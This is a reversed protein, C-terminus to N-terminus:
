KRAKRLIGILEERSAAQELVALVGAEGFPSLNARRLSTITEPLGMDEDDYKVCVSDTAIAPFIGKAALENKLRIELNSIASLEACIVDDAPNGTENSVAGFITLSGGKDLCRAAGFYRKLYHVTKAELGCSLMKGGSSDETENYARALANFSDVFLLVDQGCEALCKARKLLYDAVLVQREPEDEYTSYILADKDILKRFRGITEPLQDVLLVFTKLGANLATIAPAIKEIFKSKGAKPSSILLGRQGREFPVVFDMYKAAISTYQQGDYVNIKRFPYCVEANEFCQKRKFDDAKEGNIETIKTVVYIENQKKIYCTVVDGEKLEYHHIFEVALLVKEGDEAYNLPLLLSLGNYTALQGCYTSDTETQDSTRPQSDNVVFKLPHKKFEAIMEKYDFDLRGYGTGKLIDEGIGYRFKLDEVAQILKIDTRDDLVPAGRGSREQAPIEELLVAVIDAILEGKKKSTPSAVGVLRGYSRLSALSQLSLFERCKFEFEKRQNDSM